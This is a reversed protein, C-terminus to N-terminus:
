GGPPASPRSPRAVSLSGVQDNMAPRASSVSRLPRQVAPSAPPSPSTRRKWPAFAASVPRAADLVFPRARDGVPQALRLGRQGEPRGLRPGVDQGVDLRRQRRHGVPGGERRPARWVRLRIPRRAQALGLAAMAISFASSRAVRGAIAGLRAPHKQAARHRLVKTANM